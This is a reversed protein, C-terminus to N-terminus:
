YYKDEKWWINFEQYTQFVDAQYAILVSRRQGCSGTNMKSKDDKTGKAAHFSMWTLETYAELM